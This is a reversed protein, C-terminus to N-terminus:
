DPRPALSFCWGVEYLADAPWETFWDITTCNILGPFMRCRERFTDGIPSLCLVVHLNTRRATPFTHGGGHVHSDFQQISPVKRCCVLGCAQDSPYVVCIPLVHALKLLSPTVGFLSTEHHPAQRAEGSGRWSSHM